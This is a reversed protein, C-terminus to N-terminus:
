NDGPLQSTTKLVRLIHIEVVLHTDQVGVESCEEGIGISMPSPHVASLQEM